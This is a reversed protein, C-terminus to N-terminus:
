FSSPKGMVNEAVCIPCNFDSVPGLYLTHILNVSELHGACYQVAHLALQIRHASWIPSSLSGLNPSPPTGRVSHFRRGWQREAETNLDGVNPASGRDSTPHGVMKEVECQRTTRSKRVAIGRFGGGVSKGAWTRLGKKAGPFRLVEVVTVERKSCLRVVVLCALGSLDSFVSSWWGVLM